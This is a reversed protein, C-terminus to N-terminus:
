ELGDREAPPCAPFDVPTIRNEMRYSMRLFSDNLFTVLFTVSFM